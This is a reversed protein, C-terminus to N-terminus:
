GIPALASKILVWRLCVHDLAHAEGSGRFLDIIIMM